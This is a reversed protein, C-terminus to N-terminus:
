SPLSQGCDVFLIAGTISRNAALMMTAEVLDDLAVPRRLPLTPITKEMRGAPLWVPPLVPGPAIGSVRIRPALELALSRTADALARKSESYAGRQPTPAAIEQDLINVAAGDNCQAAFQRILSVPAHFNVQFMGESAAPDRSYLSANNILIDVKEGLDAFFSEVADADALDLKVVRAQGAPLERALAEGEAVSHRAHILVRAGAKAFGRVLAAGVRVAGGTVLVTKGSFDM